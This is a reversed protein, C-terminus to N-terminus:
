RRATGGGPRESTYGGGVVPEIRALERGLRRLAEPDMAVEPRALEAQIDDYQRAVDALRDDLDSMPRDGREGPEPRPPPRTPSSGTASSSSPAM